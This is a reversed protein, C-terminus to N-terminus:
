ISPLPTPNSDKVKVRGSVEVSGNAKIIELLQNRIENAHAETDTWIGVKHEPTFKGNAVDVGLPQVAMFYFRESHQKVENCSTATITHMEYTAM